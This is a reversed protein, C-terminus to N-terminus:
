KLNELKYITSNILTLIEDIVNQLESEKGLDDRNVDIYNRVEKLLQIPDSDNLHVQSNYAGIKGYRGIFSEEYSDLLGIVKDYYDNLAVHEAYSDDNLHIHHAIEASRRIISFFESAKDNVNEHLFKIFSWYSKM